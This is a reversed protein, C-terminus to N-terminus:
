DIWDTLVDGLEDFHEIIVDAGAERLVDQTHYGWSVGIAKAGAAVAMEMDYSTDGIMVTKDDWAGTEFRAREIMGPHPKSPNHDPTQLTDFFHDLSHNALMRKLGSLNKGTAVGMVLDERGQLAELAAVTGDYLVDSAPKEQHLEDSNEKFTAMMEVLQDEDVIGSLQHLCQILSLGITHRIAEPEPLELEHDGFTRRMVEIIVHAGDSLTGDCDFVILATM